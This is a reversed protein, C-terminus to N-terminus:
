WNKLYTLNYSMNLLCILSAIALFNVNTKCLNIDFDGNQEEAWWHKKGLLNRLSVRKWLRGLGVLILRNTFRLSWSVSSATRWGWGPLSFCQGSLASECGWADLDQEAWFREWFEWPLCYHTMALLSAWHLLALCSVPQCCLGLWAATLSCPATTAPQICLDGPLM